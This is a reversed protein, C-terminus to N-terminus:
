GRFEDLAVNIEEIFDRRLANRKDPRNLTLKGVGGKLSTTIYKPM